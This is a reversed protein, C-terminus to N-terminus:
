EPERFKRDRLVVPFEKRLGTLVEQPSRSKETLIFEKVTERSEELSAPKAEEFNDISVLHYGGEDQIPASVEGPNLSFATDQWAALGPGQEFSGVLGGKSATAEDKSAEQAAEAFPQGGKIRDRWSLAEEESPLLIHRLLVRAPRTFLEQHSAFYAEIEQDTVTIGDTSLRTMIQELRLERRLDDRTMGTAQLAEQFAGPDGFQDQLEKYKADITEEGIQIGEKEAAATILMQDILRTLTEKTVREPLAGELEARTIKHEGVTAVPLSGEIRPSLVATIMLSIMWAAIILLKPRTGSPTRIEM